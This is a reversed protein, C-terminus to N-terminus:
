ELYGLNILRQKISEEEEKSFAQKLNEEEENTSIVQRLIYTIYNSVSSFGKDKMKEKFKEALPNPILINEYEFKNEEKDM